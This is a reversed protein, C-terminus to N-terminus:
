DQIGSILLLDETPKECETLQYGNIIKSVNLIDNTFVYYGSDNDFLKTKKDGNKSLIYSTFASQLNNTTAMSKISNSVIYWKGTTM